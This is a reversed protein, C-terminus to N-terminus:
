DGGTLAGAIREARDGGDNMQIPKTQVAACRGCVRCVGDRRRPRHNGRRYSLRLGSWHLQLPPPALSASCRIRALRLALVIGTPNTCRLLTHQAYVYRNLAQPTTPTGGGQAWAPQADAERGADGYLRALEIWRSRAPYRRAAQECCSLAEELAGVDDPV